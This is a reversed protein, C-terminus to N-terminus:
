MARSLEAIKQAIFCIAGIIILIKVAYWCCAVFERNQAERRRIMRRVFQNYGALDKDPMAHYDNDM